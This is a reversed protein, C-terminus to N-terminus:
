PHSDRDYSSGKPKLRLRNIWGVRFSFTTWSRIFIAIGIAPRISNVRATAETPLAPLYRGGGGPRPIHRRDGYQTRTGSCDRRQTFSHGRFHLPKGLIRQGAIGPDLSSAFIIQDSGGGVKVNGSWNKVSFVGGTRTGDSFNLISDDGGMDVVSTATLTLNDM